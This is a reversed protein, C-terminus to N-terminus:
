TIDHSSPIIWTKTPFGTMDGMLVDPFGSFQSTFPAQGPRRLPATPPHDGQPSIHCCSPHVTFNHKIHRSTDCNWRKKGCYREPNANYM